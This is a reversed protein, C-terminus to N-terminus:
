QIENNWTTEQNKEQSKVAEDSDSMLEDITEEESDSDVDDNTFLCDPIAPGEFWTPKLINNDAHWGYDTPSLGQEPFATIARTWLVTVYQVRQIKMKLAPLSPPLM